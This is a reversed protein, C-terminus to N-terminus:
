LRDAATRALAALKTAKDAVTPVEGNAARVAYILVVTKDHNVSQITDTNGVRYTYARQGVDPVRHAGPIEDETYAGTGDYAHAVLSYRLITGDSLNGLANWVCIGADASAKQTAPHGFLTSVDGDTMLRCADPANGTKARSGLKPQVSIPSGSRQTNGGGSSCATVLLAGGVATAAARLITRKKM